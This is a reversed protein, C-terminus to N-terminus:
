YGGSPPAGQKADDPAPVGGDSGQATITGEMGRSRHDGIPCYWAYRGSRPETKLTGAQGPDIAETTRKGDPAQIALAHVTDGRNAVRVSFKGAAVTARAPEIQFDTLTVRISTRASSDSRPEAAAGCGAVAVSSPAGLALLLPRM